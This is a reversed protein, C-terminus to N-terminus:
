GGLFCYLLKFILSEARLERAGCGGERVFNPSFPTQLDYPFTLYFDMKMIFSSPIGSFTGITYDRPM